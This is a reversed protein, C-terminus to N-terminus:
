FPSNFCPGFISWLVLKKTKRKKTVTMYFSAQLTVIAQSDNQASYVVGFRIFCLSVALSISVLGLAILWFTMMKTSDM